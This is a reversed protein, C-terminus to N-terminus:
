LRERMLYDAALNEGWAGVKRNHLKKPKDQTM